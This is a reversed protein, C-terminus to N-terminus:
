AKIYHFSINIIWARGQGGKLQKERYLAEEITEFHETHLVVWPRYRNTYAKTALSNHSYFRQILDSTYGIYKRKHKESYLVYVTFIM